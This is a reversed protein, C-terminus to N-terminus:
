RTVSGIWWDNGDVGEYALILPEGPDNSVTISRGDRTSFRATAIATREGDVPAWRTGTGQLAFTYGTGDANILVSEGAMLRRFDSRALRMTTMGEVGYRDSAFRTVLLAADERATPTIVARTMAISSSQVEAIADAGVELVTSAADNQVIDVTLPFSGDPGFVRYTLETGASTLDEVAAVELDRDPSPASGSCAPLALALLELVLACM